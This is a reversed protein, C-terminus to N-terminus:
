KPAKIFEFLFIWLMLAVPKRSNCIRIHYLVLLHFTSCETGTFRKVRFISICLQNDSEIFLLRLKGKMGQHDWGVTPEINEKSTNNEKQEVQEQRAFPLSERIQLIFMTIKAIIWQAVSRIIKLEFNVFNVNLELCLNGWARQMGM